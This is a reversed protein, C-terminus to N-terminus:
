SDLIVDDGIAESPTIPFDTLIGDVSFIGNDIFSLVEALPDYSYNYSLMADNAFDSAFVELGEKHADMVFSTYPQLYGNSTVPWIYHKPVLIGTAFTKVFTLNKLLSGYTMNTSPEATDEGLFRFILKTKSKKLRGAISSLFGLEPSSVHSLIVHRTLSLLYSRMSLNHQRYFLDHQINLWIPAPKVQEVLDDVTLIPFIGDFKNSRSYIDQKLSVPLLTKMDYDVSFWGSTTEGNVIYNTKGDPYVDGITTCNDIVLNPLCIGKGDKTLRVDCWSITDPSGAVYSFKYAYESSDPFLGSFGGKAVISPADGSLTRWPSVAAPKLNKRTVATVLSPLAATVLLLRLAACLFPSASSEWGGRRALM